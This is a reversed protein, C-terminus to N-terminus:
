PPFAKSPLFHRAKLIAETIPLSSPQIASCM